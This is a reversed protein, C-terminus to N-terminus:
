RPQPRGSRVYKGDFATEWTKGGDKSTRWHQRVSADANRSWRVENVAAEAKRGPVGADSMVMDGDKLGGELLLLSGTNDVWTQHWVGRDTDYRNFSQGEVVRTAKWSEHLVCGGYLPAIRNTGVLVGKPNFVDWDGIWFDFQHSETDACPPATAPSQAAAPAAGALALTLLRSLFRM